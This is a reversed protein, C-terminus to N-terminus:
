RSASLRIIRICAKLYGDTVAIPIVGNRRMYQLSKFDIRHNSILMVNVDDRSLKEAIHHRFGIYLRIKSISMQPLLIEDEYRILERYEIFVPVFAHEGAIIFDPKISYDDGLDIKRFLRKEANNRPKKIDLLRSFRIFKQFNKHFYLTIDKRTIRSYFEINKETIPEAPIYPQILPYSM